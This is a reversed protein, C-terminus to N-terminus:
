QLLLALTAPRQPDSRGREVLADADAMAGALDRVVDGGVNVGLPMLENAVGAPAHSCVSLAARVTVDTAKEVSPVRSVDYRVVASHPEPVGRRTCPQLCELAM